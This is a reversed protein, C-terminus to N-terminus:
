AHCMTIDVSLIYHSFSSENARNTDFLFDAIDWDEDLPANGGNRPHSHVLAVITEDSRRSITLHIDDTDTMSHNQPM